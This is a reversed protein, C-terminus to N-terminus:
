SKANWRTQIANQAIKRRSDITRAQNAKAGREFRELRRGVAIALEAIREDMDASLEPIDVFIAGTKKKLYQTAESKDIPVILSQSPIIALVGSKLNEALVSKVIEKIQSALEKDM